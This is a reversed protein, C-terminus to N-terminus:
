FLIGHNVDFYNIDENPCNDAISPPPAQEFYKNMDNNLPYADMPLYQSQQPAYVEPLPFQQAFQQYYALQYPLGEIMFNPDVETYIIPSQQSWTINDDKSIQQIQPIHPQQSISQNNRRFDEFNNKTMNEVFTGAVPNRQRPKYEYLPFREKHLNKFKSSLTEFNKKERQTAGGWMLGAIKSHSTGDGLKVQKRTAILGLVTRFIMFPNPQRKATTEGEHSNSKYIHDFIVYENINHDFIENRDFQNIIGILAPKDNGTYNNFTTKASKLRNEWVPNLSM